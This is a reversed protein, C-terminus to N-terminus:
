RLTSVQSAGEAIEGFSVSQAGSTTAVTRGKITCATVAVGLKAAGAQLLMARATAAALRLEAFSSQMTSSGGTMSPAPIGAGIGLGGLHAKVDGLEVGLEDAVVLAYTPLIGQGMEQRDLVVRVEGSTTVHVYATLTKGLDDGSESTADLVDSANSRPDTLKCAVVLGLLGLSGRAVLTRRDLLRSDHSSLELTPDKTM